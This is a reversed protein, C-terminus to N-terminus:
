FKNQRSIASVVSDFIKVAFIAFPRAFFASFILEREYKEAFKASAEAIEATL